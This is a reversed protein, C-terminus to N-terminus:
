SGLRLGLLYPTVRPALITTSAEYPGTPTSRRYVPVPECILQMRLQAEGASADKSHCIAPWICITRVPKM